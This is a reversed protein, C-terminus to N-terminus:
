AVKNVIEPITLNYKTALEALNRTIKETFSLNEDEMELYPRDHATQLSISFEETIGSISPAYELIRFLGYNSVSGIGAFKLDQAEQDTCLCGIACKNGSFEDFYVCGGAKYARPRKEVVFYEWAKNFAEQNTM